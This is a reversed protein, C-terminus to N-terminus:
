RRDGSKDVGSSGPHGLGRLPLGLDSRRGPWTGSLPFCFSLFWGSEKIVGNLCVPVTIGRLQPWTSQQYDQLLALGTKPWEVTGDRWPASHPINPYRCVKFLDTLPFILFITPSLELM